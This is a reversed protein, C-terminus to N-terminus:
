CDVPAYWTAHFTTLERLFTLLHPVDKAVSPGETELQRALQSDRPALGTVLDDYRNFVEIMKAAETPPVVAHEPWYVREYPELESIHSPLNHFRFPRMRLFSSDQGAQDLAEVVIAFLMTPIGDVPLATFKAASRLEPLELTSRMANDWALMEPESLDCYWDDVSFRKRVWATPDVKWVPPEEAFWDNAQSDEGLRTAFAQLQSLSPENILSEFEATDLTKLQYLV